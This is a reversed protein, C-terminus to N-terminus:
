ELVLQLDHFQPADAPQITTGTQDKSFPIVHSAGPANQDTTEMVVRYDGAPVECQELDTLDWTVEHTTHLVLTAGTVADVVNNNAAQVFRTLYRARIAAWRELTKVFAGASTEIWIAGVNRPAFRGGGTSTRVRVHLASLPSPDPRTCPPTTSADPAFLDIPPEIGPGPEGDRPQFCAAM